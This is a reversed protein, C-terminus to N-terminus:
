KLLGGKPIILLLRKEKTSINAHTQRSVRLIFLYIRSQKEYFIAGYRM